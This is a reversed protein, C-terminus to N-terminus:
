CRDNESCNVSDLHLLILSHIIIHLGCPLSSYLWFTFFFIFIVIIIIIIQRPHRILSSSFTPVPANRAWFTTSLLRQQEVACRNRKGQQTKKEYEFREMEEEQEEEATEEQEKIRKALSLPRQLVVVIVFRWTFWISVYALSIFELEVM